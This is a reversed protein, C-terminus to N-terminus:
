QQTSIGHSQLAHRLQTTVHPDSNLSGSINKLQKWNNLMWTMEDMGLEPTYAYKSAQSFGISILQKLSALHGLGLDLRFKLFDTHGGSWPPIWM